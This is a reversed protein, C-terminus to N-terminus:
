IGLFSVQDFGEQNVFDLMKWVKLWCDTICNKDESNSTEGVSSIVGFPHKEQFKGGSGCFIHYLQGWVNFLVKLHRCFESFYTAKSLACKVSTEYQSKLYKFLNAKTSISQQKWPQFFLWALWLKTPLFLPLMDYCHCIPKLLRGSIAECKMRLLIHRKHIKSPLQKLSCLALCSTLLCFFPMCFRTSKGLSSKM